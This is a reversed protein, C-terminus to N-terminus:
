MVVTVYKLAIVMVIAWFIMSVIGFVDGETPAPHGTSSLAVQFAYMPSTGIDGYVIGLATITPILWGKGAGHGHGPTREAPPPEAVAAGPEPMRDGKETDYFTTMPRGYCPAARERRAVIM